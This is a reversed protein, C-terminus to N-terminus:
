KHFPENSILYSKLLQGRHVSWSLSFRVLNVKKLHSVSKWFDNLIRGFGAQKFVPWYFDLTSQFAQLYTPWTLVFTCKISMLFKSKTFSLVRTKFAQDRMDHSFTVIWPTIRYWFPVFNIIIKFIGYIVDKLQTASLFIIM